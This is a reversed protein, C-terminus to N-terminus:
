FIGPQRCGSLQELLPVFRESDASGDLPIPQPVVHRVPIFALVSRNGAYERVQIGAIGVLPLVQGIQRLLSSTRFAELHRADAQRRLDRGPVLDVEMPIHLPGAVSGRERAVGVRAAHLRFVVREISREAETAQGSDRRRLRGSIEARQHLVM